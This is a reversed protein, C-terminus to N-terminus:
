VCAGDVCSKGEETFCNYSILQRQLFGDVEDCYWERLWDNLCNDTASGGITSEVYGKVPYNIGGDTDTCTVNTLCVAGNCGFSECDEWLTLAIYEVCKSDGCEDIYDCSYTYYNRYINGDAECYAVDEIFGQEGCETTSTCSNASCAYNGTGNNCVSWEDVLNNCNNDLSDCVEISPGIENICAGWQGGACTQTGTQCQGVDSGCSETQGNICICGENTVGDCDEDVSGECTENTPDINGQCTRWIGYSCIQIGFECLGLNSVGCQQTLGEDILGDCDNDKNDCIETTLSCEIAENNDELSICDPDPDYHIKNKGRGINCGEFDCYGDGDNDKGDDCQYKIEGKGKFIDKIGNGTIGEILSVALLVIVATSVIILVKKRDM